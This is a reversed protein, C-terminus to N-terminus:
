KQRTLLLVISGTDQLTDHNSFPLVIKFVNGRFTWTGMEEHGGEFDSALFARQTVGQFDCRVVYQQRVGKPEGEKLIRPGIVRFEASNGIGAIVHQVLSTKPNSGTGTVLAMTGAYSGSPPLPDRALLSLPLLLLLLLTKM